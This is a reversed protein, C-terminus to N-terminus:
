KGTVANRKKSKVMSGGGMGAVDASSIYGGGQVPYWMAVGTTGNGTNGGGAIAAGTVTVSSGFPATRLFPGNGSPLSRIPVGSAHADYGAYPGSQERARVTVTQTTPTTTTTTSQTPPTTSVPTSLVYVPSSGNTASVPLSSSYDISTGLSSAGQSGSTSAGTDAPQSTANAAAASTTSSSAASSNRKTFWIGVGAGVVIVGAWAWNPLGATEKTLLEAIKSSM